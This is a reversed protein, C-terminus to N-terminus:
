EEKSIEHSISSTELLDNIIFQNLMMFLIGASLCALQIM